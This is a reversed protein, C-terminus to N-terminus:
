WTTVFRAPPVFRAPLADFQVSATTVFCAATVFRAAVFTVM